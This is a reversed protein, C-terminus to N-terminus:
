RRDPRLHPLLARHRPHLRRDARADVPVDAEAEAAARLARGRPVRRQLPRVVDLEAPREAEHQSIPGSGALGRRDLHGLHDRAAARGGVAADARAVQQEGGRGGEALLHPLLAAELSHGRRDRRAEREVGRHPTSCGRLTSSCGRPTSSCGRLTSRGRGHPAACVWAGPRVTGASWGSAPAAAAAAYRAARATPSPSRRSRAPRACSGRPPPAGSAACGAARSAALHPWTVRPARTEAASRRLRAPVGPAAKRSLGQGEAQGGVGVRVRVRVGVRVRVSVQVRVRVGWQGSVEVRVRSGSGRWASRDSRPRASAGFRSSPSCRRSRLAPTCSSGGSQVAIILLASRRRWGRRARLSASLRTASPALASACTQVSSTLAWAAHPWRASASAIRGRM